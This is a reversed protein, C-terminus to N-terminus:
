KFNGCKTLKEDDFKLWSDNQESYFYAWYHRGYYCIMGRLVFVCSRNKTTQSVEMIKDIALTPSLLGYLVALDKKGMEEDIYQLGITYVSPQDLLWRSEIQLPTNCAECYKTERNSVRTTCESKTLVRM